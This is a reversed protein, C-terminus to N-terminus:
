DLAKHGPDLGYRTTHADLHRPVDTPEAAVKAQQAIHSYYAKNFEDPDLNNKAAYAFRAAAETPNAVKDHALEYAHKADMGGKVLDGMVPLEANEHAILFPTIDHTKGEFEMDTSVRHDIAMGYPTSGDKTLASAILPVNHGHDVNFEGTPKEPDSSPRRPAPISDRIEKARREFSEQPDQGDQTNSATRDPSQLKSHPQGLYYDHMDEYSTGDSFGVAM